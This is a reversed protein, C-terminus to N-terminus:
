AIADFAERTGGRAACDLAARVRWADVTLVAVAGIVPEPGPRPQRMLSFGDSEVRRWWRAEARWVDTAREMDALAWRAPVPLLRRFEPLEAAVAAAPGLLREIPRASGAPLPEVTLFRQRAVALAVAATAWERAVPVRAVLREAWSLRMGWGISAAGADGPDGWVSTALIRRIDEPTSAGALRPQASALAGLAFPPETSKGALRRISEDVNAVEFWGALVRLLEAGSRPLWGALIRVHWLLTEAVARQASELSLEPSISPVSGRAALRTLAEPLTPCAALERADTRGIRRLALARSRVSGAVWAATM